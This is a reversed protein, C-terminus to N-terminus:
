EYFSVHCCVESLYFLATVVKLWFVSILSTFSQLTWLISLCNHEVFVTEFNHMLVVFFM